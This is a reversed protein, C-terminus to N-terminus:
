AQPFSTMKVNSNLQIIDFLFLLAELIQFSHKMLEAFTRKQILVLKQIANGINLLNSVHIYPTEKILCSFDSHVNHLQKYSVHNVFMFKSIFSHTSFFKSRCLQNM